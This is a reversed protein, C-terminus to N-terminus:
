LPQGARLAAQQEPGMFFGVVAGALSLFDAPDLAAVEAPLLAPDTIRPLLRELASVDMQLVDTLKLGRLAGVEPKRLTVTAIKTDGRTVPISLTVTQM